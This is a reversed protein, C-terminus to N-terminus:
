PALTLTDSCTGGCQPTILSVWTSSKTATTAGTRTLTGYEFYGNGLGLHRFDNGCVSGIYVAGGDDRYIATGGSQTVTIEVQGEETSPSGQCNDDCSYDGIWVGELDEPAACNGTFGFSVSLGSLTMEADVSSTATTCLTFAGSNIIDVASQPMTDDDASVSTTSFDANGTIEAQLAQTGNTCADPVNGAAVLLSIEVTPDPTDDGDTRVITLNDLTAALDISAGTLQGLEFEDPIELYAAATAPVDATLTHVPGDAIQITTSLSKKKSVTPATSDSSSCGNALFLALLLMPWCIASIRQAKFASSPLPAMNLTKMNTEEQKRSM